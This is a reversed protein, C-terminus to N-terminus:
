KTKLFRGNRKSQKVPQRTKWVTINSCTRSCHKTVSYRNCRYDCGCVFCKRDEFSRYWHDKSTCADSCFKVLTPMFTDFEKKCIQCTAKVPKKGIWCKVGHKKHWEIGEPSGHWKSALNRIRGLHRKNAARYKPKSYHVAMHLRTHDGQKILELNEISSDTWDGNKHHIHLGDPIKGKNDNWVVRHLLRERKSGSGDRMYYRGTSM